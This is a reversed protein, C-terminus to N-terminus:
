IDLGQDHIITLLERVVDRSIIIECVPANNQRFAILHLGCGPDTCTAVEFWAARECKRRIIDHPM